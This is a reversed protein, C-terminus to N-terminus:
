LETAAAADLLGAGYLTDNSLIGGSRTTGELRAEVEDPTPPRGLVQRLRAFVLAAAGAVHASAMSCGEYGGPYGFRRFGNKRPRELTLQLITPGGSFPACGPGPVNGDAGGGPAVMDLGEGHNAYEALCGRVTTAGIAMAHRGPFSVQDTGENGASAIVIAGQERARDIAECVGPVDECARVQSSPSCASVCFELSLNIVDAGHRAAWRIGRGVNKATGAGRSNLVRIPMIKAGYAIGTVAKRNDTQEGITGAVHTGHGNEDLPVEDDEIFDHGPVFREASFDPSREFEDGLDRYAIGTDVVAVTVGEGGARKADILNQWAGPADIGGVSEPIPAAPTQGCLGGCPLLNWQLQEWGEGTGRDNPDFRGNVTASAHAIHNPAAYAVAPNSDLAAVAEGVAVGAPLEVAREGGDGAFRVLVEGEVFSGEAAAAPAALGSCTACAFLAAALACARTTITTLMSGKRSCRRRPRTASLSTDHATEIGRGAFRPEEASVLM